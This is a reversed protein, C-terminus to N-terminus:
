RPARRHEALYPSSRLMFWTALPRLLRVLPAVVGLDKRLDAKLETLGRSQYQLLRQSEETDLWDGMFQPVRKRVFAEAPIAGIGITGM